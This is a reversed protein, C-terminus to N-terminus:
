WPMFRGRMPRYHALRFPAMYQWYKIGWSSQGFYIENKGFGPLETSLSVSGQTASSPRGAIGQSAPSPNNATGVDLYAIHATLLYLLTTQMGVDQVPGRGTNNHLICAENFYSTAQTSNVNSFAPFAAQWNAFSFTAVAGM